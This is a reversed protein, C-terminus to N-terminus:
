GKILGCLTESENIGIKDRIKKRKLENKKVEEPAVSFTPV